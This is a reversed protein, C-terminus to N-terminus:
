RAFKNKIHRYGLTAGGILFLTSSIPEPAVTMEDVPRAQAVGFFLLIAVLILLPIYTKM